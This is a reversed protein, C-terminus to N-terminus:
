KEHLKKINLELDEIKSCLIGIKKLIKVNLRGFKSKCDPCLMAWYDSLNNTKKGCIDCQEIVM